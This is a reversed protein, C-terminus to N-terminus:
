SLIAGTAVSALRLADFINQPASSDQTDFPYAPKGSRAGHYTCQAFSCYPCQAPLDAVVENLNGM